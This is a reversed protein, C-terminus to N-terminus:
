RKFNVLLIAMTIVYLVALVTAPWRLRKVWPTKSSWVVVLVAPYLFIGYMFAWFVGLLRLDETM